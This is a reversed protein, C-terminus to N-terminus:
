TSGQHPATSLNALHPYRRHPPPMTAKHLDTSGERVCVTEYCGVLPGVLPALSKVAFRAAAPGHAADFEFM